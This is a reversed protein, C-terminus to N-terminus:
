PEFSRAARADAARYAANSVSVQRATSALLQRLEQIATDWRAKAVVYATQAEGAWSTRLPELEQALEQLRGDIKAAVASLDGALQELGGHDVKLGDLEM